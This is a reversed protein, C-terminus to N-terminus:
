DAGRFLRSFEELQSFLEQYKEQIQRIMAATQERSHAKENMVNLISGVKYEGFIEDLKAPDLAEHTEDELVSITLQVMQGAKEELTMGKLVKEVKAEVDKDPPTAPVTRPVDKCGFVAAAALVFAAMKWTLRNSDTM